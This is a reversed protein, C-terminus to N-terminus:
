KDNEIKPNITVREGKKEPKTNKEKPSIENKESTNDLVEKNSDEEFVYRKRMKKALPRSNKNHVQQRRGITKIAMLATAKGVHENVHSANPSDDVQHDSSVIALASASKKAERIISSIKSNKGEAMTPPPLTPTKKILNGIGDEDKPTVKFPNFDFDMKTNGKNLDNKLRANVGDERPKPIPIDTM